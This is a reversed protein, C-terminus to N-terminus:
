GATADAASRMKSVASCVSGFCFDAVARHVIGALLGLGSGKGAEGLWVGVGGIGFVTVPAALNRSEVM